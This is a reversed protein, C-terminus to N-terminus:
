AQKARLATLQDITYDVCAMVIPACVNNRGDADKFAQAAAEGEDRCTIAGCKESGFNQRMYDSREQAFAYLAATSGDTAEDRGVLLGAAILCGTMAGCTLGQGGIGGGFASAARSLATDQGFYRLVAKCSAEACNLKEGAFKERTYDTDAKHRYSMEIKKM